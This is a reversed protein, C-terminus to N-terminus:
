DNYKTGLEKANKLELVIEDKTKQNQTLFSSYDFYIEVEKIKESNQEYLKELNVYEKDFINNQCSSLLISM